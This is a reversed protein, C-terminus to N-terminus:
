VCLPKDSIVPKKTKTRCAEFIDLITYIKKATHTHTTPQNQKNREAKIVLVPALTTRKKALSSRIKHAQQRQMQQPKERQYLRM